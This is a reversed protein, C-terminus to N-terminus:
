GNSRENQTKTITQDAASRWCRCISAPIYLRIHQHQSCNHWRQKSSPKAPLNLSEHLSTSVRLSVAGLMSSAMMALEHLAGGTGKALLCDRHNCAPAVNDPAHCQLISNHYLTPLQRLTCCISFGPGAPRDQLLIAQKYLVHSARWEAPTSTHQQCGPM